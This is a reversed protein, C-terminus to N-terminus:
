TEQFLVIYVHSNQQVPCFVYRHKPVLKYILKAGSLIESEVTLLAAVGGLMRGVTTGWTFEHSCGTEITLEESLEKLAGDSGVARLNPDALVQELPVSYFESVDIGVYRTEDFIKIVDLAYFREGRDNEFLRLRLEAKAQLQCSAAEIRGSSVRTLTKTSGGGGSSGFATVKFVVKSKATSYFAFETSCGALSPCHVESVPIWTSETQIDKCAFGMFYGVFRMLWDPGFLFPYADRAQDRTNLLETSLGTQNIFALVRDLSFFGARVYFPLLDPNRGIGHVADILGPRYIAGAEPEISEVPSPAAAGIHDGFEIRAQTRLGEEIGFAESVAHQELTSSSM